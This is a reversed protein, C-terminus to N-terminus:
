KFAYPVKLDKYGMWPLICIYKHICVSRYSNIQIYIYTYVYVCVYIYM